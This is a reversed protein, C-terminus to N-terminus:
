CTKWLFKGDNKRIKRPIRSEAEGLEYLLVELDKLFM